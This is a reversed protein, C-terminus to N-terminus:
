AYLSKGINNTCRLSRIELFRQEITDSVASMAEKLEELAIRRKQLETMMGDFMSASGDRMKTLTEIETASDKCLADLTRTSSEM